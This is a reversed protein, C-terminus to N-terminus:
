ECVTLIKYSQNEDGKAVESSFDLAFNNLIIDFNNIGQLIFVKFVFM